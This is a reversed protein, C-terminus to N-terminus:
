CVIVEHFVIDNVKNLTLIRQAVLRRRKEKIIHSSEEHLPMLGEEVIESLENMYANCIGQWNPTIDADRICENWIRRM